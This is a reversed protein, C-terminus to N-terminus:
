DEKANELFADIDIQRYEPHNDLYDFFEWRNMGASELVESMSMLEEKYLSFLTPLVAEEKDKYKALREGVLAAQLKQIRREQLAALAETKEQLLQRVPSYTAPTQGAVGLTPIQSVSTDVTLSPRQWLTLWRDDTQGGQFKVGALTDSHRQLTLQQEM